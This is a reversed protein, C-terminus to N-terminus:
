QWIHVFLPELTDWVSRVSSPSPHYDKNHVYQNMSDISTALLKDGGAVTRIARLQSKTMAKSAELHDAVSLLKSRLTAEQPKSPKFNPCSPNSCKSKSVKVAPISSPKVKHKEIFADVTLELFVRMMVAGSNKHKETKLTRLEGYVGNIRKENQIVLAPHAPAVTPSERVARTKATGSGTGGAGGASAGAAGGLPRAAKLKKAPDPLDAKMESVFKKRDKSKDVHYVTSVSLKKALAGLAKVTEAKPYHTSVVGEKKNLEVGLQNRVHPDALVRELNSIKKAVRDSEDQSIAGEAVLYKLLGLYPDPKGTLREHLRKKEKRGWKVLGVGDQEGDHRLQLWHDAKDRGPVVVCVIKQSNTVSARKAASAIKAMHSKEFGLGLTPNALLKLATIRRNGELVVYDGSSGGVPM